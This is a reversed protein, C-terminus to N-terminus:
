KELVRLVHPRGPRVLCAAPSVYLTLVPERLSLFPLSPFRGPFRNGLQNLRSGTVGHCHNQATTDVTGTTGLTPFRKHFLSVPEGTGTVLFPFRSGGRDNLPFRPESRPRM